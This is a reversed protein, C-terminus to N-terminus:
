FYFSAGLAAANFGIRSVSFTDAGDSYSQYGFGLQGFFALQDKILFVQGGLLASVTFVNDTKSGSGFANDAVEYSVEAGVFPVQSLFYKVGGNVGFATGSQSSGGKPKFSISHFGVGLDIQLDPSVTYLGQVRLTFPVAGPSTGAARVDNGFSFENTAASVSVGFRGAPLPGGAVTIVPKPAPAPAPAPPPPVARAPAPVPPPPAVSPAPAPAPPPPPVVVVAPAEDDILSIEVRRAEALDGTGATVRPKKLVIQDASIGDKVLLNKVALARNKALEENKAASGTPDHYGSIYAKANANAKLYTVMQAVTKGANAPLSTKGVGFYIKAPPPLEAAPNQSGAAVLTKTATSLEQMGAENDAAYGFRTLVLIAGILLFLRTLKM